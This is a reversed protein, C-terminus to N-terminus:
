AGPGRAGHAEHSADRRGGLILRLGEEVIADVTTGDEEAVQRVETLLADDIELDVDM